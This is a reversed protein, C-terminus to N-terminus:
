PHMPGGARPPPTMPLNRDAFRDGNLRMRAAIWFGDLVGSLLARAARSHRSDRPPLASRIAGAVSRRLVIWTLALGTVPHTRVWRNMMAGLGLGYGRHLTAYADNDRTHAHHVSSRPEFVVARGADLVRCFMDLDEAGALKRGAGLLHDFGGLDLVLHRDFAMLAGHGADLGETIKTMRRPPEFPGPEGVPAEDLMSGTVAGVSSDDFAELLATTWGAVARCDDDTYVVYPRTTAVLGINRAISLGPIESRMYRVGAAEVVERTAPGKSASDVVVVETESPTAAAISALCERLMAARDRTCVVVALEDPSRM